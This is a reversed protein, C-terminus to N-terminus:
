NRQLDWATLWQTSKPQMDFDNELRKAMDDLHGAGYFVAIKKKGAALEEKLVEFAKRNRGKILTNEGSADDLGAVAVDVDILQKAMTQKLLMARNDSMLAVLLGADGGGSQTALGAGMMRAAMKWIGDGRSKMDAVFEDPSMDAHRFNKALYNIHELQYELNLLDKMGTQMSALVSKRNQLDAPRIRTGDPAVLEYLVVDYTALLRDIEEYYEKQGIHIVGFLDVTRGAYDSDPAGAFRVVSTELAKAKNTDTKTIRIYGDSAKADTAAQNAATPAQEATPDVKPAAAPLTRNPAVAKGTKAQNSAAPSDAYSSSHGGPLAVAAIAIVWGAVVKFRECHM